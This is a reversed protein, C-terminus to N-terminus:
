IRRMKRLPLAKLLAAALASKLVAGVLFPTVGSAVAMTAGVFLALWAAGLALCLLNALLMSTFALAVRSGNWGRQALWGTFAGCIPFAFLYGGTPGLIHALGGSGSALVPMGLAGEALWAVITLAGLRWGLLAGVLTVAFTQMTIPVPVMPVSVYSSLALFATGLVVAGAQLLMDRNQIDLPSFAPKLSATRAM